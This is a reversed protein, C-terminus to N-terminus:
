NLQQKGRTRRQPVAARESLRRWIEPSESRRYQEYLQLLDGETRMATLERVEDLVRVFEEFRQSLELFVVAGVRLEARAARAAEGVARYASGGMDCVYGSSLGRREFSEAFFGSVFLAVDGLHRLRYAREVGAAQQAHMLLHALPRSVTTGAPPVAFGALLNVLYFETERETSVQAAELAQAVQERFFLRVDPCGEVASM